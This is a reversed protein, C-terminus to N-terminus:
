LADTDLWLTFPGDNTLSVDMYAGFRGTEVRPVDRRAREVFWEYLRNAEDPAGAQTFSPRNGKKCNAFLTFQSVVLVDGHVDALSLNTKGNEDEFIRLRSIKSWLREAQDETDEHGVGLLIVLGKGIFGVTSGDIEVQARSVRQVVARM